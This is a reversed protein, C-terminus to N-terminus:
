APPQQTPPLPEPVQNQIPKLTRLYAFVSKLDEDTLNRYVQWPMPPLIPRSVGWHRGSRITKIFIDETWIGIGTLPEPTLNATFSVGWPGAFATNTGSGAWVWAGQGLDPAQPMVLSEPHGSLALSMDPEPGEAGMKWPTHCDHCGSTMVIYEGREVRQKQLVEPSPASKRASALPAVGLAIVFAAALVIIVTTFTKQRTSM